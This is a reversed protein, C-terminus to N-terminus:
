SLGNCAYLKQPVWVSRSGHIRLGKTGRPTGPGSRDEQEAQRATLPRARAEDEQKM